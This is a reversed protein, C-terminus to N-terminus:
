PTKMIQLWEKLLQLTGKSQKIRSDGDQTYSFLDLGFEDLVFFDKYLNEVTIIELQRYFEDLNRNTPLM